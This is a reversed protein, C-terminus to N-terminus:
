QRSLDAANAAQDARIRNDTQYTNLEEQYPLDIFQSKFFPYVFNNLASGIGVVWPNPQNDYAYQQRQAAAQAQARINLITNITSTPTGAPLDIQDAYPNIVM